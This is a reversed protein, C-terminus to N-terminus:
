ARRGLCSNSHRMRAQDAVPRKESLGAQDMTALHLINTASNQPVQRGCRSLRASCLGSPPIRVSKWEKAVMLDGFGGIWNLCAARDGPKFRRVNNGVSVVVGAAETGPVFPTPPRMQYGGSVLLHDM